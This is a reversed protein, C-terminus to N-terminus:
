DFMGSCAMSLVDDDLFEMGKREGKGIEQVM